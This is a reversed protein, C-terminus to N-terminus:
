TAASVLKQQSQSIKSYATEIAATFLNRAAGEDLTRTSIMLKLDDPSRGTGLVMQAAGMVTQAAAKMAIEPPLGHAKAADQLAQLVPFVYTPGVATLATAINMLNEPIEATEGFVALLETATNEVAAGRATGFCYPNMGLGLLSPTNPIMRLIPIPKSLISEIYATTICAALSVILQGSHLAPGAETLVPGVVNPPVALFVIDGSAAARKNDGDVRIGFSSKLEELRDLRIDTATIASPDAVRSKILREMFVGAIIGAGLFVYKRNQLSQATM